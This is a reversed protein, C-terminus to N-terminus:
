GLKAQMEKEIRIIEHPVRFFYLMLGAANLHHLRQM